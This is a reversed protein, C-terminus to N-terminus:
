VPNQSFGHVLAGSVKRQSPSTFIDPDENTDPNTGASLIGRQTTMTTMDSTLRTLFHHMDAGMSYAVQRGYAGGFMPQLVTTSSLKKLTELLEHIQAMLRIILSSDCVSSAEMESQLTQLETSYSEFETHVMKELIIKAKKMLTLCRVRFYQICVDDQETTVDEVLVEHLEELGTTKNKWRVTVPTSRDMKELVVWQPKEAFLSGIWFDGTEAIPELCTDSGLVVYANTAIESEIAGVINGVIVPVTEDHSICNYSGRTNVALAQLLSENHDDGYGLTCISIGAPIRRRSLYILENTGQLGETNQGDTLICLTHIPKDSPVQLTAFAHLGEEMNTSAKCCLSDTIRLLEDKNSNACCHITAKSNYEVLTLADMEQMIDILARLTRQVSEIRHGTMSLSTDLLLALHFPQRGSESAPPLIQLGVISSNPKLYTAKLFM